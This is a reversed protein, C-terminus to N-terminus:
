RRRKGARRLAAQDSRRAQRNAAAPQEVLAPGGNGALGPGTLVPVSECRPSLHEHDFESLDARDNSSIKGHIVFYAAAHTEGISRLWRTICALCPGYSRLAAQDDTVLICPYNYAPDHIAYLNWM